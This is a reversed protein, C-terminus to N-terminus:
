GTRGDITAAADARHPARLGQRVSRELTRAADILDSEPEEAYRVRYHLWALEHLARGAEPYRHRLWDAAAVPPLNPPIHLGHRTVARRARRHIRDITSTPAPREEGALRRALRRFSVTLLVIAIALLAVLTLLALTPSDIPAPLTRRTLRAASQILALQDGGDFGLGRESFSSIMPDVWALATPSPTSPGGPTVDIPHWYGQADLVEIWAHAHAQRALRYGPHRELGAYGHVVRTPVGASRLLIAASAAFYECHGMRQEFLFQAVPADLEYRPPTTTHTFGKAFFTRTAHAAEVASSAPTLLERALARTRPDLEPLQLWRARENWPVPAPRPEIWATYRVARPPGLLRWSGHADPVFVAHASTIAAIPGPAFAVPGATPEQHVVVPIADAPRSSPAELLQATSRWRTGDFHDLSLGRILDPSPVRGMSAIRLVPTTDDLLEGLEGLRMEDAFGTRAREPDLALGFTTPGPRPVAVFLLVAIAVTVGAMSFLHIWRVRHEAPSASLSTLVGLMAALGVWLVGGVAVVLGGGVVSGLILMLLSIVIQGRGSVSRRPQLGTLMQLAVLTGAAATAVPLIASTALGIVSVLGALAAWPTRRPLRPALWSGVAGIVLGLGALYPIHELVGLLGAAVMATACVERASEPRM